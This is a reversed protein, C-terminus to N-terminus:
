VCSHQLKYIRKKRTWFSYRNYGRRRQGDAQEIVAFSRLGKSDLLPIADKGTLVKGDDGARLFYFISELQM